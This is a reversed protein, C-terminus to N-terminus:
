EGLRARTFPKTLKAGWRAMAEPSAAVPRLAAAPDTATRFAGPIQQGATVQAELKKMTERFETVFWIIALALNKKTMGGEVLEVRAIGITNKEDKFLTLFMTDKNFTNLSEYAYGGNEILVLLSLASCDDPKNKLCLAFGVNYITNGDMFTLSKKGDAESVEIKKGGIERIIESVNEPTVRTILTTPKTIPPEDDASRAGPTLAVSLTIALAATALIRM